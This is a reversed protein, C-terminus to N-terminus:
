QRHEYGLASSMDMNCPCQMQCIDIHHDSHDDSETHNNQINLFSIVKDVMGDTQECPPTYCYLRLCCKECEAKAQICHQKLARYFDMQDM